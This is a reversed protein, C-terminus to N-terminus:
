LVHIYISYQKNKIWILYINGQKNVLHSVCVDEM